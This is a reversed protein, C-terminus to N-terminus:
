KKKARFTLNVDKNKAQNVIEKSKFTKFITKTTPTLSEKIHESDKIKKQQGIKIDSKKHIKSSTRVKIYNPTNASKRVIKKEKKEEIGEKKTEKDQRYSIAELSKEKSSEDKRTTNNMKQLIEKNTNTKFNCINSKFSIYDNKKSQPTGGITSTGLFFRSNKYNSIISSKQNVANISMKKNKPDESELLEGKEIDAEAEAELQKENIIQSYFNKFYDYSNNGDSELTMAEKSIEFSSFMASFPKSDANKTSVPEKPKAKVEGIFHHNLSSPTKPKSYNSNSTSTSYNLSNVNKLYSKRLMFKSTLGIPTINVPSIQESVNEVAKLVIDRNQAKSTPTANNNSTAISTNRTGTSSNILYLPKFSNFKKSNSAISSPTANSKKDYNENSEQHIENTKISLKHTNKFKNKNEEDNDIVEQEEEKKEKSSLSIIKKISSEVSKKQRYIGSIKNTNSPKEKIKNSEANPTNKTSSIQKKFSFKSHPKSSM